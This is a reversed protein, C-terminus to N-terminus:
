WDTNGQKGKGVRGGILRSKGGDSGHTAAATTTTTTGGASEGMGCGERGAECLERMAYYSGNAPQRLHTLACFLTSLSEGPHTHTHWAMSYGCQEEKDTM